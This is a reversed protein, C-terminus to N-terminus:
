LQIKKVFECVLEVVKESWPKFLWFTHPTNELTHVESYINNEKLKSVSEDRGACFRPISSNIFLIPPSYKNIYNVPSAKEWIEPNQQYSYGLWLKGASPKTAISDKGSEFPTTMDMVGDINIIGNVRTSIQSRNKVDFLRDNIALGSLSALQAGASVGMLFIMSTDVNYLAANDTIWFIFTKIDLVASPFKKEASLSYEITATNIGRESIQQALPWEMSKDGSRWGGGHIIIILPRKKNENTLFLDAKLNRQKETHYIVDQIFNIKSSKHVTNLVVEPFETKVKILTSHISFSTDRIQAFSITSCIIYLFINRCMGIM